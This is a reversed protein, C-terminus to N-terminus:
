MGFEFWHHAAEDAVREERGSQAIVVQRHGRACETDPGIAIPASLL